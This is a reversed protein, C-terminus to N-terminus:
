NAEALMHSKKAEYQKEEFDPRGMERNQVKELYEEADRREIESQIQLKHLKARRKAKEKSAMYRSDGQNDPVNLNKPSNQVPQRNYNKM